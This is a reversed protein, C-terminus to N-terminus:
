TEGNWIKAAMNAKNGKNM